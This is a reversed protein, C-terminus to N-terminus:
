VWVSNRVCACWRLFSFSFLFLSLLSLKEQRNTFKEFIEFFVLFIKTNRAKAIKTAASKQSETYKTEKLTCCTRRGGKFDRTHESPNSNSTAFSSLLRCAPFRFRFQCSLFQFAPFRSLLFPLLPRCLRCRRCRCNWIIIASARVCVCVCVLAGARDFLKRPVHPIFRLRIKQSSHTSAKHHATATTTPQTLSSKSTFCRCRRSFSVAANEEGEKPCLSLPHLQYYKTQLEVRKRKPGM